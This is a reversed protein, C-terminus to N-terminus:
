RAEVAGGFPTVYLLSAAALVVGAVLSGVVVHRATLLSRSQVVAEWSQEVHMTVHFLMAFLWVVFSLLHAPRWFSGFRFGFLWLEIGTGFLVVTSIVVVPGIVRLFLPPPGAARYAANGTYYRVFRYGTSMLKLGIPPVLLFGLLYHEPLLERPRLVTVGIAALLLLLLAGNLSTLRENTAVGGDRRVAGDYPPPRPQNTLRIPKTDQLDLRM